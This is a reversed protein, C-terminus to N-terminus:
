ITNVAVGRRASPSLPRTSIPRQRAGKTLSSILDRQMTSVGGFEQEWQGEGEGDSTGMLDVLLGLIRYQWVYGKGKRGRVSKSPDWAVYVGARRDEVKGGENTKIKGAFVMQVLGRQDEYTAEKWAEISNLTHSDLWYQTSNLYAKYADHM